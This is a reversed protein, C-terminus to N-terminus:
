QAALASHKVGLVTPLPKAFRFAPSVDRMTFGSRAKLRHMRTWHGHPWICYFAIASVSLFIARNVGAGPLRNPAIIFTRATSLNRRLKLPCTPCPNSQGLVVAAGIV